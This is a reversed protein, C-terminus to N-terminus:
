GVLASLKQGPEIPMGVYNESLARAASESRSIYDLRSVRLRHEYENEGPSRHLLRTMYNSFSQARWVRWHVRANYERLVTENDRNFYEILGEGLVGVDAVALNLGKAGTPPVIHASDGALFLRGYQMTEAVYSRMPTISKDIVEGRQLTWDSGNVAFRKDLADWIRDDSWDNIDADNNVQIYLRSITPSRMSYLAFGDEHSAYILEDTSPVAKALIGLWGYPYENDFVRQIREPIANRCPGHFGDCGAVFDCELRHEQGDMTYTVSPHDTDVDNLATVDAEFYLPQDDALRAAILDRTLETQGYIMVSRGTLDHMPVHFREGECQLYIGHHEMGHEDMNGNLSLQRILDVTGQELVGARLRSEVYARDRRELVVCDVGAQYLMHSLVLGAPGAGVIAVQTRRTTTM